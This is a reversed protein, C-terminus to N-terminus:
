SETNEVSQCCCCCLCRRLRMWFSPQEPVIPVGVIPDKKNATQPKAPLQSVQPKIANASHDQDLLLTPASGAHERLNNETASSQGSSSRPTPSKSRPKSTHPDRKPNQVAQPKSQSLSELQGAVPATVPAASPFQTIAPAQKAEMTKGPSKPEESAINPTTKRRPSEKTLIVESSASPEPSLVPSQPQNQTLDQNEIACATETSPINEEKMRETKEHEPVLITESSVTPDPAIHEPETTSIRRPAQHQLVSDSSSATLIASSGEPSSAMAITEEIRPPTPIFNLEISQISSTELGLEDGSIVPEPSSAQAEYKVRTQADSVLLQSSQGQHSLSPVVDTQSSSESHSNTSPSADSSSHTSDVMDAEKNPAVPQIYSRPSSRAMDDGADSPYSSSDHGEMESSVESSATLISKTDLDATSSNNLPLSEHHSEIKALSQGQTTPSTPVIEADQNDSPEALYSAKSSTSEAPSPVQLSPVRVNRPHQMDSHPPLKRFNILSVHVACIYCRDTTGDHIHQPYCKEIYEILIEFEEIIGRLKPNNRDTIQSCQGLMQALEWDPACKLLLDNLLEPMGMYKLVRFDNCLMKALALYSKPLDVESKERKMLFNHFFSSRPMQTFTFFSGPHYLMLLWPDSNRLDMVM